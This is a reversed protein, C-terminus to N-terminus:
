TLHEIPGFRDSSLAMKLKFGWTQPPEAAREQGGIDGGLPQLTLDSHNMHILPVPPVHRVDLKPSPPWALDEIPGLRHRSTTRKPPFDGHRFHSETAEKPM